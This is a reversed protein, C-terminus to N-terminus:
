AELINFFLSIEKLQKTVSKLGSKEETEKLIKHFKKAYQDRGNEIYKAAYYFGQITLDNEENLVKNKATKKYRRFTKEVQAFDQLAFNGMILTTYIADLKMKFSIQQYFLLLSEITQVSQKVSDKNGLLLLGAYVSSLGVYRQIFKEQLIPKELIAACRTRLYEIQQKIEEPLAQEYNAKYSGYYNSVLHSSQIFISNLEPLNVFSNWFLETKGDETIKQAELLINAVNPQRILYHMKLFHVKPMLNYLYPKIVHENRQVSEEINILTAFNEETFFGPDRQLYLLYAVNLRALIQVSYNASTSLDKLRRLQIEHDELSVAKGDASLRSAILVKIENLQQEVTIFEGIKEYLRITESLAGEYTATQAQIQLVTILTSFDEVKECVDRLIDGLVIAEELQGTNILEQIKVINSSLYNPYNKALFSTQRFTHHALQFLKKMDKEDVPKEGYVLRYLEPSDQEKRFDRDIVDVLALPYYSRVSVEKLYQRFKQLHFDDLLKITKEIVLM